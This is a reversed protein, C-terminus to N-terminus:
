VPLQSTRKRRRKIRSTQNTQQSALKASLKKALTWNQAAIAEALENALRGAPSEEVGYRHAVDPRLSSKIRAFMRNASHRMEEDTEKVYSTLM